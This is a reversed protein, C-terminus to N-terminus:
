IKGKEESQILCVDEIMANLAEFKWEKAYKSNYILIVKQLKKSSRIKRSLANQILEWRSASESGEDKYENQLACPLRVHNSDWKTKGSHPEPPQSSNVEIPLQYLVIHDRNNSIPPLHDFQWKDRGRYVRDCEIRKHSDSSM